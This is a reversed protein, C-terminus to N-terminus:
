LVRDAHLTNFASIRAYTARSFHLTVPADDFPSCDVALWQIAGTGYGSFILDLRARTAASLLNEMLHLKVMQPNRCAAFLSSIMSAFHPAYADDFGCLVNIQSSM